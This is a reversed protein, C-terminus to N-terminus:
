PRLPTVAETANTIGQEAAKRYLTEADLNINGYIPELDKLLDPFTQLTEALIYQAHPEGLEAALAYLYISLPYDYPMGIGEAACQAMVAIAPAYGTDTGLALLPLAVPYIREHYYSMAMEFTEKANLTHAQPLVIDALAEGADTLGARAAERLLGTAKVTDPVVGTGDLYMRALLAKSTPVGMEAGRELWYRAKVEDKRVGGTGTMLMMGLNNYAKPDPEKNLAACEIWYLASDPNEPLGLLKLGYAYGLYNQAPAYGSQASSRLLRLARVTDPEFGEAGRELLASLAYQAQPVGSDAREELRQLSRKRAEAEGTPLTSYVTQTAFALAAILLIKKM